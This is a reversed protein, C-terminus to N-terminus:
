PSNKCAVGENKIFGKAELFYALLGLGVVLGLLAFLGGIITAAAYFFITTM